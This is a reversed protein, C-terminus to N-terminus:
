LARRSGSPAGTEATLAKWPLSKGDLGRALSAMQTITDDHRVNKRGAFETVYRHLHKPSMKHFTGTHARKLM